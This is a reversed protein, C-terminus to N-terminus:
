PLDAAVYITEGHSTDTGVLIETGDSARLAFVDAPGAAPRVIAFGTRTAADTLSDGALEYGGGRRVIAAFTRRDEAARAHGLEVPSLPRVQARLEQETGKAFDCWEGIEAVDVPTGFKTRYCQTYLVPARTRDHTYSEREGIRFTGAFAALRFFTPFRRIADRIADREANARAAYDIKAPATAPTTANMPPRGEHATLLAAASPASRAPRSTTTKM